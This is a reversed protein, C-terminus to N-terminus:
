VRRVNPRIGWPVEYFDGFAAASLIQTDPGARAELNGHDNQKTPQGWLSLLKGEEGDIEPNRTKFWPLRHVLDYSTM